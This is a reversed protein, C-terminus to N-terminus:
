LGLFVGSSKLIGQIMHRAIPPLQHATTALWPNLPYIKEKPTCFDGALFVARRFSSDHFHLKCRMGGLQSASLENCAFAIAFGPSLVPLVPSFSRLLEQQYHSAGSGLNWAMKM